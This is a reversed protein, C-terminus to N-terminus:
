GSATQSVSLPSRGITEAVHRDTARLRHNRLPSVVPGAATPLRRGEHHASVADIFAEPWGFPCDIGLPAEGGILAAIEDDGVGTRLDEVTARGDTWVSHASRLRGRNPPM